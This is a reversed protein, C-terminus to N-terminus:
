NLLSVFPEEWFEANYCLNLDCLEGSHSVFFTLEYM